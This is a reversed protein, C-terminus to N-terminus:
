ESKAELQQKYVALAKQLSSRTKDVAVKRVIGGKFGTLGAQQSGKITILYFGNGRDASDRVCVTLDLATEFYHSAYLQKVAVAYAPKDPSTGHYTIVQVVRLTPKLGFNVKEWYFDSKIQDSKADPYKLLYQELEPLYAPLAKIEHLLSAFTEAVQTPHNKDRYIGLASNGGQQYRQLADLVMQQALRNAKEAHDPASWDVSRQFQEMTEAPLQVECHDPRCRQIDKLDGDDLTFGELDALQPPDSFRRLALFSPIKLLADVDSALKLYQGPTSNIYVTGFVFVEDPVPSQLVKAIAKGSRVDQIQEDSLGAFERFFKGPETPQNVSRQDGARAQSILLFILVLHKLKKMSCPRGILRAGLFTM